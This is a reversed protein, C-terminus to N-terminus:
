LGECLLLHELGVWIISGQCKVGFQVALLHLTVEVTTVYQSIRWACFLLAISVWADSGGGWIWREMDAIADIPGSPSFERM